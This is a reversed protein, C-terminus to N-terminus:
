VARKVCFIMRSRYRGKPHIRNSEHTLANKLWSTVFSVFFLLAEFVRRSRQAKTTTLRRQRASDRLKFLRNGNVAALSPFVYGRM